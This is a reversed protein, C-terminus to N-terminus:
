RRTKCKSTYQKNILRHITFTARIGCVLEIRCKFVLPVTHPSVKLELQRGEGDFVQFMLMVDIAKEFYVVKKGGWTVIVPGVQNVPDLGCQYLRPSPGWAVDHLPWPM